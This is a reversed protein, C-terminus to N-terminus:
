QLQASYINGSTEMIVCVLKNGAVSLIRWAVPGTATFSSKHEHRVPFPTGVPRKAADLRQGYICAKGDKDSVYYIISGDASWASSALGGDELIRTWDVEPVPTDSVPVTYLAPAGREKRTMVALWKGDASTSVNEIATSCSLLPTRAGTKFDLQVLEKATSQVIGRDGEASLGVIMCDACVERPAAGRLAGVYSRWKGGSRERYAFVSGTANLRPLMPRGGGHTAAVTEAGTSNDRVRVEFKTMSSYAVYALHSGDASLFPGMKGMENSVLPGPQGLVTGTKPDLTYSMVSMVGKLHGFVMRGNQSVSASIKAGPGSTLQWLDCALKMSPSSIACAFLNIGNISEGISFIIQDGSWAYPVYGSGSPPWRCSRSAAIPPGGDLPAVWWGRSEPDSPRAGDFLVYRSDPSWVTTPGAGASVVVRFDPQFVRPPGGGRPVLVMQDRADVFLIHSGDPSFSPNAGGDAIRREAGPQSNTEITYIGGGDRDSQFVLQSGDPSFSPKNDEAEHQTLARAQTGNIHQIYIDLDGRRSRDSAYAIFQGDASIACSGTLGTDFTIRTLEPELRSGPKFIYRWLIFGAAAIFLLLAASGAAVLPRRLKRRRMGSGPTAVRDPESEEKLDQLAVKLDSMNQWRRRPDKRMCRAILKEVEDPVGPAIERVPKPEQQLISALTMVKSSTSFPQVGSLMEYLVTGFSFIDSRSDVPLGQAQEPSMYAITGVIVGAETLPAQGPQMTATEDAPDSNSETLKALGFDLVKVTGEGTVMVNSPKLDRHVIGASHAKALADAIQAAHALAESVRMGKRQILQDLTKGQVFEMAIYDVGDSSGIDYIHVINPHNLGSAAKAEIVFRQKRDPNATKEPPLVKLAVIRDLHTDRAKYVEGMGGQGLQELVTYHAISRGVLM